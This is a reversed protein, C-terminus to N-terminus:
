EAEGLERIITLEGVEHLVQQIARCDDADRVQHMAARLANVLKPYSTMSHSVYHPLPLSQAHCELPLSTAPSHKATM